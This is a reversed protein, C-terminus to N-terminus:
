AREKRSFVSNIRPDRRIVSIDNIIQDNKGIRDELENLQRHLDKAAYTLKKQKDKIYDEYVDAACLSYPSVPGYMNGFSDQVRVWVHKTIEGTRENHCEDIVVSHIVYLKGTILGQDEKEYSYFVMDGAKM